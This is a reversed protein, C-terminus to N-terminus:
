EVDLIRWRGDERRFRVSRHEGYVITATDGEIRAPPVEASLAQRAAELRPRVSEVHAALAADTTLRGAEANPLLQRLVDWRARDVAWWLTELTAEPTDTRALAFGGRAVRWGGDEQVLVIRRGDALVVEHTAERPAGPALGRALAAPGEPDRTAEAALAEPGVATRTARDSLRHVAAWDGAEVARRYAELTDEPGSTACATALALVGFAARM